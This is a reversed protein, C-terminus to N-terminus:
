IKITYSRYSLIRQRYYKIKNIKVINSKSYLIFYISKIKESQNNTNTYCLLQVNYTVFRSFTTMKTSIFMKKFFFFDLMFIAASIAKLAKSDLM